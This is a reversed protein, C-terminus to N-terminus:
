WASLCLCSLRQQECAGTPQQQAALVRGRVLNAITRHTIVNGNGDAGVGKKLAKLRPFVRFPPPEFRVAWFHLPEHQSVYHAASFSSVQECHSLAM